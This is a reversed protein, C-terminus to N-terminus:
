RGGVRGDLEAVQQAIEAAQQAHNLEADAYTELIEGLTGATYELAKGGGKVVNITQQHAAMMWFGVVGYYMLGYAALVKKSSAKAVIDGEATQQLAVVKKRHADLEEPDLTFSM